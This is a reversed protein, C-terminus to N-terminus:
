GKIMLKLTQKLKGGLENSASEMIKIAGLMREARERILVRERSLLAPKFLIGQILETDEHTIGSGSLFKLLIFFESAAVPSIDVGDKCTFFMDAPQLIEVIKLELFAYFIEIFGLRAEKSLVNKGSFFLRSIENFMGEIWDETIYQKVSEPFYFGTHEGLIQGLFAKKFASFQHIDEYPMEQHYFETDKPLTVVTLFGEFDKASQMKELVQARAYEKWSTNDQFNFLLINESNVKAHLYGLWEDIVSAKDISEQKTPSPLVHVHLLKGKNEIEYVTEPMRQLLYPDFSNYDGEELLNLIKNLPGNLHNKLYKSLASYDAALKNWIGTGKSHESSLNERSKNVLFQVYSDLKEDVGKAEYLQHLLADIVKKGAVDEPRFEQSPFAIMHQYARTELASRLYMQFDRLYSLCGKSSGSGLLRDPNSASFLALLAKHVNSCILSEKHHTISPFYQNITSKAKKLIRNAVSQGYRDSWISLDSLPDSDVDQGIKLGFDCILSINKILRANFFRSGDQKRIFFLEYETDNKVSELDVFVHGADLRKELSLAKSERKFAQSALALIWKGIMANDITKSIKKKYFEQLQKYERTETISHMNKSHFLDTYRDIKKAAKGVIVMISKIKENNESFERANRDEQYYDKLHTLIVKFISKIQSVVEEKNDSKLWSPNKLDIGDLLERGEFSELEWPTDAISALAEVADLLKIGGSSEENYNM